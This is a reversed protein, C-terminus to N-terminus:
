SLFLIRAQCLLEGRVYTYIAFAHAIRMECMYLEAATGCVATGDM